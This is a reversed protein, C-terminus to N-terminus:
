YNTGQNVEQTIMSHILQLILAPVLSKVVKHAAPIIIWIPRAEVSQEHVNTDNDRRAQMVKVVCWNGEKHLEGGAAECVGM